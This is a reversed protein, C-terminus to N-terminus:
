KMAANLPAVCKELPQIAGKSCDLARVCKAAADVTAAPISNCKDTKFETMPRKMDALCATLATKLGECSPNPKSGCAPLSLAFVAAAVLLMRLSPNM